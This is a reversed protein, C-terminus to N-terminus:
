SRTAAKRRHVFDPSEPAALRSPVALPQSTLGASNRGPPAPRGSPRREADGWGGASCVVSALSETACGCGREEAPINPASRLRPSMVTRCGVAPPLGQHDDPRLRVPFSVGDFKVARGYPARLERSTARVVFSDEGFGLRFSDAPADVAVEVQGLASSPFGRTRLRLMPMSDVVDGLIARSTLLEVQSLLPDVSAGQDGRTPGGVVGGALVRGSDSLRIVAVGRYVPAATFALYGAVAVVTAAVGLILWAHRRLTVFLEHLHVTHVLAELQGPDTDLGSPRAVPALIRPDGSPRESM